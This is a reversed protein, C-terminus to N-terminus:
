RRKDPFADGVFLIDILHARIGQTSLFYLTALRNAHQYYSGLWSFDRHVGLHRKTANLASEIQARGGHRAEGCPPTCFEAHNAKAEILLWESDGDEALRAVGDWCQQTGTQPWFDKWSALVGASDSGLFDLGQPEHASTDTPSPYIWELVANSR